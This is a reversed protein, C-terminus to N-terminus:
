RLEIAYLNPLSSAASNLSTLVVIKSGDPWVAAFEPDFVGTYVTIEKQNDVAWISISSKRVLILHDSDPYWLYHLAKPLVYSRPEKNPAVGPNKDFVLFSGTKNKGFFKEKEPSLTIQTLAAALTQAEPGLKKIDRAQNETKIKNWDSQIKEVDLTVEKPTQNESSTNIIYYSNDLGNHVLLEKGDPSFTFTKKSFIIEPTDSLLKNIDKTFFSPLTNTSIDLSWIGAKDEPSSVSFVIKNTTPSFLPGVVGTFTLARLSPAKPFLVAYVVNVVEKKVEVKQEWDSFGEKVIKILYVGPKLSSLDLDTTGKENGNVFVKAGDPNSRVSVVGTSDVSGNNLNPRYGRAYFVVTVTLLGVIILFGVISLIKKMNIFNYKLKM